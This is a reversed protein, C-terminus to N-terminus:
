STTTSPPTTQGNTPPAGGDQPPGAGRTSELAERVKDADLGLEAALAEVMEDPGGATGPGTPRASRMAEALRTESVGLEDALATLDGGGGPGGRDLPQSMGPASSGSAASSDGSTAAVGIGAGAALAATGVFVAVRRFKPTM